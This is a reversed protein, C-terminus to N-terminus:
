TSSQSRAVLKKSRRRAVARLRRLTANAISLEEKVNKPEKFGLIRLCRLCRVSRHNEEPFFRWNQYRRAGCLARDFTEMKYKRGMAHAVNNNLVRWTTM